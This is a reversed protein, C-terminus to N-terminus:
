LDFKIFYIFISIADNIEDVIEESKEFEFISQLLSPTM